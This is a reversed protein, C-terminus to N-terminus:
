GHGSHQPDDSDWGDAHGSPQRTPGGRCQFNCDVEGETYFQKFFM